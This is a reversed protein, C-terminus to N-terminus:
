IRLRNMSAILCTGSAAGSELSGSTPWKPKHSVSDSATLKTVLAELVSVRAEAARARAEADRRAQAQAEARGEFGGARDVLRGRESESLTRLYDEIVPDSLRLWRGDLHLELGLRPSKVALM